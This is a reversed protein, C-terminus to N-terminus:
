HHHSDVKHGDFIKEGLLFLCGTLGFGGLTVLIELYSPFYEILGRAENVGLSYYVPVAQGVIVMNYRMFFLGVIMLASGVFMLRLDTGRSCIFLILPLVLALGIEFVWFNVAYPGRILAMAGLYAGGPEGALLAVMRWVTFFSVICIGLIAVKCCANMAKAMTENMSEGRLRYALVHFFILVAAGTMVASAIFFIPLYAGHWFDRGNLLGFVGALNSNAAVEGIVAIFGCVVALRYKRLYLFAFELIMVMLAVGYLTGMWWINSTLNPSIINYLMMRIPVKIEASIVFFGACLTVIALFVARKALPVFSEVGFIHGISSVLCLGTSTVVFYIYTSILVGWTLERSVNYYIHHGGVTAMLGAASGALMILACILLALYYSNSCSKIRDVLLSELENLTMGNVITRQTM